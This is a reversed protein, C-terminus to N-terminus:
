DELQLAHWISVSKSGNRDGSSGDWVALAISVQEGPRPVVDGEGPQRMARLFVVAWQGKEGEVGPIWRGAGEADQGLGGQSSLTGQGQANLDEVPNRHGVQSVPNGAAKGTTFVDDQPVGASALQGSPANRFREALTPAGDELDRQWSAHWHWINVPRLADGMGFFPPDAADSIEVASGDSFGQQGLVDDDRTADLWSLRVALREGDHLAQVYVGEPRDHRWWLPMLAIWESEAENWADADPDTTLPTGTRSATMTRRSQMVREQVEHDIMGEIHRVLSWLDDQPLPLSPMPTGPMGLSIRRAIDIGRSGGKFIGRTFDRASTPWGESDFKEVPVDAQGDVGHCAACSQVYLDAGRALDIRDEPPPEPLDALEDPMYDELADALAEERPLDEDDAMDTAVIGDIVMRRVTAVLAHLDSEPLHGWPPMASGPMGKRLVGLLDEDSPNLNATSVVRFLGATFNRPKPDLLYSAPGDGQGTDGHCVTCQQAFLAAGRTLLAENDPTVQAGAHPATSLLTLTLLVALVNVRGSRGLSPRLSHVLRLGISSAM